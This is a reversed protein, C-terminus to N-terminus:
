KKEYGFDIDENAFKKDNSIDAITDDVIEKSREYEEYEDSHRFNAAIDNVEDKSYVRFILSIFKSNKIILEYKDNNKISFM